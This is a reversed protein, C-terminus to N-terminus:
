YLQEESGFSWGFTATWTIVGGMLNAFQFTFVRGLDLQIEEDARSKRLYGVIESV